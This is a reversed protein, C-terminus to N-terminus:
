LEFPNVDIVDIPLATDRNVILARPTQTKYTVPLFGVDDREGYAAAAADELRSAPEIRAQIAALQDALPQWLEPRYEIDPKGDLLEFLLAQRAEEDAPLVAAVYLPGRQPRLAAIRAPLSAPDVDREGLMIYRDVAYVMYLPRESHITWLGYTLAAIQIVAIVALDVLVGPKGPRYLLLTLAPGLVLDVGVLIQVVNFAGAIEFYPYPYWVFFIIALAAGVVVSSIALHLLFGQIKSM